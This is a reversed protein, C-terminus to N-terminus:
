FTVRGAFGIFPYKYNEGTTAYVGLDMKCNDVTKYIGTKVSASKNDVSVTTNIGNHHSYGATVGYIGDDHFLSIRYNQVPSSESYEFVAKNKRVNYTVQLENTTSAQNSQWVFGTDDGAMLGYNLNGNEVFGTVSFGKVKYKVRNFLKSRGTVEPISEHFNTVNYLTGSREPALVSEKYTPTPGAPVPPKKNKDPKLMDLVTEGFDVAFDELEAKASAGLNTELLTKDVDLEEATDIFRKLPEPM